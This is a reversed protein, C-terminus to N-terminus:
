RLAWIQYDYPTPMVLDVRTLMHHWGTAVLMERVGDQDWGWYHEPNDANDEGIPTSLILMRAKGRIKKLVLDPDDLHELTECCIFMDVDPIEDITSEIPGTIPWGPAYDGFYREIAPTGELVAGNGCSLDAASHLVMGATARAVATTVEVRMVHDPWHRHDHPHRYLERLEAEAHAPRLRKRM